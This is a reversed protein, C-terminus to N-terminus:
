KATKEEKYGNEKGTGYFCVSPMTIAACLPLFLRKEVGLAVSFRVYSFPPENRM